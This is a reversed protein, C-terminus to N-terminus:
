QLDEDGWPVPEPFSWVPMVHAAPDGPDDGTLAENETALEDLMKEGQAELSDSTAVDNQNTPYAREVLAATLLAAVATALPQLSEAIDGCRGSVRACADGILLTVQAGTPQTNENFTLALSATQTGTTKVMTRHPIYAAVRPLDPAWSPATPETVAGEEALIM